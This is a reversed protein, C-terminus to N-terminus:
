GAIVPWVAGDPFDDPEGVDHWQTAETTTSM